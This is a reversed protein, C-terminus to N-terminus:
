HFVFNNICVRSMFKCFGNDTSLSSLAFLKTVHDFMAGLVVVASFGLSLKDMMQVSGTKNVFVAEIIFM